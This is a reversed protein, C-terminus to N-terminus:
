PRVTMAALRDYAQNSISPPNRTVPVKGFTKTMFQKTLVPPDYLEVFIPKSVLFVPTDKVRRRYDRDWQKVTNYGDRNSTEDLSLPKNGKVICNSPLEIGQREYWRAAKRHSKFRKIIELIATLRWHAEGYGAYKGKVTMYVVMDSEKLRPAFRSGRCIATISPFRSELDPERRISDDVYPPLSFEKIAIRGRGNALLPYYSALYNM